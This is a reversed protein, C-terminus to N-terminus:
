EDHEVEGLTAVVPVLVRADQLEALAAQHGTEPDADYAALAAQVSPAAGGDDDPFAPEALVRGHSNM